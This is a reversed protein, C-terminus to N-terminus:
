RGRRLERNGIARETKPLRETFDPRCRALLATPHVLGRVDQVLQRLAKVGLGLARELLDPHGLGPLIGHDREFGKSLGVLDLVLLGDIAQGLM